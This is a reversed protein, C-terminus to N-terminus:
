VAKAPRNKSFDQRWPGLDPPPAFPFAASSVQRLNPKRRTPPLRQKRYKPLLDNKYM